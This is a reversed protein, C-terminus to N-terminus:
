LAKARQGLIFGFNKDTNMRTWGHGLIDKSELRFSDTNFRPGRRAPGRDSSAGVSERGTPAPVSWLTHRLNWIPPQLNEAPKADKAM